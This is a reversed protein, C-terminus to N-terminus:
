LLHDHEGCGDGIRPRFDPSFSFSYISSAMFIDASLFQTFTNCVFNRM